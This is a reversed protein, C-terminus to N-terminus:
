RQRTSGRVVLEIPFCYADPPVESDVWSCLTEAARKGMIDTPLSVTTLKPTTMRAIPLDQMGVVSMQEPVSIDRRQLEFLVGLAQVDSACLFGDLQPRQRCAQGVM